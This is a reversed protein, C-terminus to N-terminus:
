KDTPEINEGDSCAGDGVKFTNEWLMEWEYRKKWAEAWYIGMVMDKVEKDKLAEDMIYIIIM